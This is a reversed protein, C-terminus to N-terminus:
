RRVRLSGVEGIRHRLLQRALNRRKPRKAHDRASRSVAIPFRVLRHRLDRALEVHVREEFARHKLRVALDADGDLEDVAPGIVVQPRLAVLSAIRVRDTELAVDGAGDGPLDLERESGLLLPV